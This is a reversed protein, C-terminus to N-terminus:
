HLLRKLDDYATKCQEFGALKAKQHGYSVQEFATSLDQFRAKPSPERNPSGLGSLAVQYERNSRSAEFAIWDDEDMKFIAALYLQRIGEDYNGEQACRQAQTWHQRSSLAREAATASAPKQWPFRWKQGQLVLGAVLYLIYLALLVALFGLVGNFVSQIHKPVEAALGPLAMKSLLHALAETMQHLLRDISKSVQQFLPHQQLADLWSPASPQFEPLRRVQELAPHIDTFTSEPLLTIGDMISPWPQTTASQPADAAAIQLLPGYAVPTLTPM